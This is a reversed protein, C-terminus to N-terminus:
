KNIKLTDALCHKFVDQKINAENDLRLIILQYHEHQNLLPCFKRQRPDIKLTSVGNRRHSGGLFDWGM